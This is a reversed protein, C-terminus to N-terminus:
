KDRKVHGLMMEKQEPLYFERVIDDAFIAGEFTTEIFDKGIAIFGREELLNFADPFILLPDVGFEQEFRKRSLKLSKIGFVIRQIMEEKASFKYARTIPAKNRSLKDYYEQLNNANQYIIRKAKVCSHASLGLGAMSEGDWNAQRHIHRFEDAKLFSFNDAMSYGHGILYKYGDRTWNAEEENTILTIENKRLKRYLTNNYYLELKYIAINEPSLEVIRQITEMWTDYTDAVLGSMLDVNICKIGVDRALSFTHYFAKADHNRGNIQLVKDNVSQCGLSLRTVGLDKLLQLKERSTESGPRAEVCIETKENINFKNLMLKLIDELAKTPLLTPTGGGFYLSHIESKSVFPNRSQIEIEKYLADLYTDIETESAPVFSKYYCFECKKRCFPIHVYLNILENEYIKDVDQKNMLGLPPYQNIFDERTLKTLM